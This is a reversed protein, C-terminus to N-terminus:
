LIGDSPEWGCEPCYYGTIESVEYAPRGDIYGIDTAVNAELEEGCFPCRGSEVLEERLSRRTRKIWDKLIHVVEEPTHKKLDDAFTDLDDLAEIKNDYDESITIDLSNLLFEM